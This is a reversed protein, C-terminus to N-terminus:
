IFVIKLMRKKGKYLKIRLNRGFSITLISEEPRSLTPCGSVSTSPAASSAKPRRRGRSRAPQWSGGGRRRSQGKWRPTVRPAHRWAREEADATFTHRLLTVALSSSIFSMASMAENLVTGCIKPDRRRARDMCLKLHEKM